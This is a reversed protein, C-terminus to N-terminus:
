IPKIKMEARKVSYSQTRWTRWTVGQANQSNKGNLYLGNLNSNHCRYYWWAGKYVVACHKEWIDNDRDKASFPMGAHMSLSDGATGLFVCSSVNSVFVCIFFLFNSFTHCFHVTLNSIVSALAM